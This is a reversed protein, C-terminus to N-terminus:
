LKVNVKSVEHNGDEQDRQLETTVLEDKLKNVM